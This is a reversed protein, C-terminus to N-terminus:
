QNYLMVYNAEEVLSAIDKRPPPNRASHPTVPYAADSSRSDKNSYLAALLNAATEMAMTFACAHSTSTSTELLAMM